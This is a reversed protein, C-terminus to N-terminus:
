LVTRLSCVTKIGEQAGYPRKVGRVNCEDIGDHVGCIECDDPGEQLDTLAM